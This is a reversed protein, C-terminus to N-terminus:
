CGELKLRIRKGVLEEPLTLEGIVIRGKNGSSKHKVFFWNRYTSKVLKNELGKGATVRSIYWNGDSAKRLIM